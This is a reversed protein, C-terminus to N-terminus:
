STNTITCKKTHTHTLRVGGETVKIQEFLFLTVPTSNSFRLDYFCIKVHNDLVEFTKYM